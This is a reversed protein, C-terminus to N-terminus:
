LPLCCTAAAVEVGPLNDLRQQGERVLEAMVATKAFRADALSMDMALVNRTKFGPNVSHLAQFTRILLGAGALLVMALAM